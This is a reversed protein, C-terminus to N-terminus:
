PVLTFLTKLYYFREFEMWFLKLPEVEKALRRYGDPKYHFNLDVMLGVHDARVVTHVHAHEAVSLRGDPREHLLKLREGAKLRALEASLAEAETPTAISTITSM